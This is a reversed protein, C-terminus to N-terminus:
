GPWGTVIGDGLMANKGKRGGDGPNEVREALKLGALGTCGSSITVACVVGM